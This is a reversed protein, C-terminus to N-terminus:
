GAIAIAEQLVDGGLQRRQRHEPITGHVAGDDVRLAPM